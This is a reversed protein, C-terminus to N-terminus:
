VVFDLHIVAGLLEGKIMYSNWIWGVYHFVKFTLAALAEKEINKLFEAASLEM